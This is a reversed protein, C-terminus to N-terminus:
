LDDFHLQIKGVNNHRETSFKKTIKELFKANIDECFTKVLELLEKKVPQELKGDTYRLKRMALNLCVAAIESQKYAVTKPEMLSVESIYQALHFVRRDDVGGLAFYRTM